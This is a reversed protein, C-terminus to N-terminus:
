ARPYGPEDVQRGQPAGKPPKVYTITYAEERFCVDGRAKRAAMVSLFNEADWPLPFRIEALAQPSNVFRAVAMAFWLDVFYPDAEAAHPDRWNTAIWRSVRDDERHVNCFRATALISDNTLPPPDGREKKEFINQRERIWNILDSVCEVGTGTTDVLPKPDHDPLYQAIRREPQGLRKAIRRVSWQPNEAALCRAEAAISGAGNSASPLASPPRATRPDFESNGMGANGVLNGDRPDDGRAEAQLAAASAEAVPDDVQSQQGAGDM